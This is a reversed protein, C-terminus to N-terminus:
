LPPSGSHTASRRPALKKLTRRSRSPHTVSKRGKEGTRGEFCWCDDKLCVPLFCSASGDESESGSERRSGTQLDAVESREHPAFKVSVGGDEDEDDDDDDEFYGSEHETAKHIGLESNQSNSIQM